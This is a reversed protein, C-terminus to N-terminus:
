LDIQNMYMDIHDGIAIKNKKYLNEIYRNVADKNVSKYACTFITEAGQPGVVPKYLLVDKLTQPQMDSIYNKLEDFKKEPQQQTRSAHIGHKIDIYHKYIKISFFRLGHRCASHYIWYRYEMYAAHWTSKTRLM